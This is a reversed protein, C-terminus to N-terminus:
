PKDGTVALIDSRLDAITEEVATDAGPVRKELFTMVEDEPPDQALLTDFEARTADDMREILRLMSGRFVLDGIDLLLEEQEEPQLAAIDLAEILDQTDQAQTM